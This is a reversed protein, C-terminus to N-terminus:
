LGGMDARGFFQVRGRDGPGWFLLRPSPAGRPGFSLESARHAPAIREPGTRIVGRIEKLQVAGVKPLDHHAGHCPAVHLSPYLSLSLSLSSTKKMSLCRTVHITAGGFLVLANPPFKVELTLSQCIPTVTM